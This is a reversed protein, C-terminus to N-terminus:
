RNVLRNIICDYYESCSQQLKQYFLAFAGSSILLNNNHIMRDIRQQKTECQDTTFCGLAFYILHNCTQLRLEQNEYELGDLLTTIQDAVVAKAFTKEFSKRYNQLHVTVEIYSFFENIEDEFM